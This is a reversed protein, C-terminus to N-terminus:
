YYDGRQPPKIIAGAVVPSDGLVSVGFIPCVEYFPIFSNVMM